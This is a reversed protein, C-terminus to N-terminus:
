REILLEPRGIPFRCNFFRVNEPYDNITKNIFEFVEQKYIDYMERDSLKISDIDLGVYNAMPEYVNDMLWTEHDYYFDDHGTLYMEFEDHTRQIHFNLAIVNKPIISDQFVNNLWQKISNRIEITSQM